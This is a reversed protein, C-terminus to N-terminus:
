HTQIRMLNRLKQLKKMRQLKPMMHGIRGNRSSECYYMRGRKSSIRKSTRVFICENQKRNKSERRPGVVTRAYVDRRNQLVGGRKELTFNNRKERLRIAHSNKVRESLTRNIKEMMNKNGERMADELDTKIDDLPRRVDSNLEREIRACIEEYMELKRRSTDARREALLRKNAEDASCNPVSPLIIAVNKLHNIRAKRLTKRFRNRLEGEPSPKGMNTHLNLRRHRDLDLVIFLLVRLSDSCVRHVVISSAFRLLCSIHRYM